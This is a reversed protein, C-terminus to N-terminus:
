RIACSSAIVTSSSSTTLSQIRANSLSAGSYLSRKTPTKKQPKRKGLPTPVAGKPVTLVKKVADRFLAFAEPGEIM